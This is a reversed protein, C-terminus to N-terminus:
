MMKTTVEGITVDATFEKAASRMPRIGEEDASYKGMGEGVVVGRKKYEVDCSHLNQCDSACCCRDCAAMMRCEAHTQRSRKRLLEM